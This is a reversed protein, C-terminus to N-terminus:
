PGMFHQCESITVAILIDLGLSIFAYPTSLCKNVLKYSDGADERKKKKKPTFKM